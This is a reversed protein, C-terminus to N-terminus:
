LCKLTTTWFTEKYGAGNNDSSFDYISGGAPIVSSGSQIAVVIGDKMYIVHTYELVKKSYGFSRDTDVVVRYHKLQKDLTLGELLKFFGEPATKPFESEWINVYVKQKGVYGFLNVKCEIEDKVERRSRYEEVYEKALKTIEDLHSQNELKVYLFVRNGWSQFNFKGEDLFPITDLNNQLKEM